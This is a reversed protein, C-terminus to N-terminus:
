PPWQARVPGQPARGVPLIALRSAPWPGPPTGQGKRFYGAAFLSIGAATGGLLVLFVSTLSDRRVHFPLDPLGIPLVAQEAPLGLSAAAVVALALGCLAGLPFLTRGAFGVSMPRALGLAGIIVWLALLSLCANLPSVLDLPM